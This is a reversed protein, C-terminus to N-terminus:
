RGAHLMDQVRHYEDPEALRVQLGASWLVQSPSGRKIETDKVGKEILSLRELRKKEAEDTPRQQVLELM